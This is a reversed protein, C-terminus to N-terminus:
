DKRLPARGEQIAIKWLPTVKRVRAPALKEWHIVASAPLEDACHTLGTETLLRNLRIDWPDHPMGAEQVRAEAGFGLTLANESLAGLRALVAVALDFFGKGDGVFGGMRDAVVFDTLLLDVKTKALEEGGMKVGHEAAGKPTVAYALHAFPVQFPRLLLFGEKLGPAPMLLEKGDVLANIRVQRLALAPTVFIRGATRYEPLRRLQEAMRGSLALLSAGEDGNGSCRVRWEDKSSM